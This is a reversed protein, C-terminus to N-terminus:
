KIDEKRRNINKRLLVTYISKFIIKIDFVFSLNKAYFVDNNFQENQSISNRYFAQSYGTIGPRVSFREIHKQDFDELKVSALTPRPGIFSMQGILVNILQPIEDISTRRLIRGIKTVRQDDDSSYTSGDENRIDPANVKMTRFKLMNFVKGNKGLRPAIYFIKGKDSFYIIPGIICVLFIVFPLSIISIIIDFIRKLFNKYM